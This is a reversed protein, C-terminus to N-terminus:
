VIARRACASRRAAPTASVRLWLFVRRRLGGRIVERGQNRHCALRVPRAVPRSMLAKRTKFVVSECRSARGSWGGERASARRLAQLGQHTRGPGGPGALQPPRVEIKYGAPLFTNFGPILGQHGRFLHSVREIVQRVRLCACAFM